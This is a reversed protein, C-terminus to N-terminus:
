PPKTNFTPLLPEGLPAQDDPLANTRVQEVKSDACNGETGTAAEASLESPTFKVPKLARAGRPQTWHSSNATSITPAPHGYLFGCVNVIKVLAFPKWNYPRATHAFNSKRNQMQAQKTDKFGNPWKHKWDGFYKTLAYDALRNKRWQRIAVEGIIGRVWAIRAPCQIVWAKIRMNLNEFIKERLSARQRELMRMYLTAYHGGGGSQLVVLLAGILARVPTLAWLGRPSLLRIEHMDLEMVQINHATAFGHIPKKHPTSQKERSTM